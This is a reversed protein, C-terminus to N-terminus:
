RPASFLISLVTVQVFARLRAISTVGSPVSRCLSLAELWYLSQKQLFTHIMGGDRLVAAHTGNTTDSAFLHDIWHICSYRIARLPDPDPIRIEHVLTGPVKLGYLDRHLVDSMLRLSQSFLDYHSQEPSLLQLSAADDCLYDKASQHILKVENNQVTLFCGCMAVVVTAKVHEPLQCLSHLEALHLPRYSSTVISLMHRCRISVTRKLEQIRKFMLDYLPHLGTPVEEVLELPEICQPSELEKIVLAVWLFTGDAKERLVDRVRDHLTRPLGMLSLKYDIYMDVSRDVQAANEKLELSLACERQMHKLKHEIDYQNRSSVLWKIGPLTVCTDIVLDLLKPLGTTCEDLADIVLYPSSSQLDTLINKFVESLVVWSNADNFITEPAQDYRKRVHSMLSPQQDVLLYILGRLVASANNLHENTAQCFFFSLLNGPLEQQLENILGCILMTKGKGPDAKIWLLPRELDDQWQRIMGHSLIWRYSDRLLGGKELQEIRTKDDRPNTRRLDRM